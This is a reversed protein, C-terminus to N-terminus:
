KELYEESCSFISSSKDEIRSEDYEYSKHLETPNWVLNHIQHFM